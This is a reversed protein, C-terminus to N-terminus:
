HFSLFQPVASPAAFGLKFATHIHLPLPRPLTELHAFAAAIM